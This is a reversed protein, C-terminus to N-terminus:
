RFASEISLAGSEGPERYRVIVPTQLSLSNDRAFAGKAPRAGPVVIAREPIELPRDGEARYVTERVLDYVPTGRTVIVGAGLVAGSRVITGEFVGCQAGIFADDEIVVPMAGVPELVGGLQVATSLHVRKGVQACSGVLVHSDVMTEDDVYAGVNLHSPPMIVVRQGLYVGRRVTTGGPVVRPPNARAALDQPPLTDKDRFQFHRNISLDVIEGWRFCLLIGRKV